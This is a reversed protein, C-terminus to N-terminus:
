AALKQSLQTLLARFPVMQGTKPRLPVARYDPEWNKIKELLNDQGLINIVRRFNYVTMVLAIEGNV